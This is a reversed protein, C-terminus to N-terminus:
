IASGRVVIWILAQATRPTLGFESAVQRTANSLAFYQSQSPSDVGLNAARCMWVDIVVADTDGAIARAFANTKLGKLAYFGATLSAQAMKLNNGLGKPTHGLSFAIAKEINSAWRERPSVASVVSAGVELTTDLNRAVEHATEQAEHYWVSAQEVQGLTAKLILNRYLDTATATVTEPTTITANMAQGKTTLIIICRLVSM